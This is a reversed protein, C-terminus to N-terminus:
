EVNQETIKYFAYEIRHSTCLIKWAMISIAQFQHWIEGAQSAVLTGYLPSLQLTIKSKFHVCRIHKWPEAPTGLIQCIRPLWFPIKFCSSSSLSHTLSQPQVCESVHSAARAINGDPPLVFSFLLALSASCVLHDHVSTCCNMEGKETLRKWPSKLVPGSCTMLPLPPPNGTCRLHQWTSWQKGRHWARGLYQPSPTEKTSTAEIAREISLAPRYTNWFKRLVTDYRGPTPSSM